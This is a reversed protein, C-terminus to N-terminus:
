FLNLANGGKEDWKGPLFDKDIESLDTISLPMGALQKWCPEAINLSLPSGSRIAIGILIGANPSLSSKNFHFNWMSM